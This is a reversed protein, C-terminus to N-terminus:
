NLFLGKNSRVLEIGLFYRACGMDKIIFADHLFTKAKSISAEDSASILLDDEYVLLMIFTGHVARTFLYTGNLSQIFGFSILKHSM